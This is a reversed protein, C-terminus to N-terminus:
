HELQRGNHGAQMARVFDLLRKLEPAPDPYAQELETLALSRNRGAGFLMRMAKKLQSRLASDFGNRQLGITNIGLVKITNGAATSFPPVDQNVASMGGVMALEGITVRQHVATMGGITARDLIVVHGGVTALNALTTYNGVVVDHGLHTTAMFLNHDGVRTASGDISARHMTVSERITNHSGIELYTTLGAASRHQADGGLVTGYDVVNDTGLTTGGRILVHPGLTTRDGVRVGAEVITFPGVTVDVGLEAQPDVLATPHINVM